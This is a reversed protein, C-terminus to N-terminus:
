GTVREVIQRFEEDTIAAKKEVAKNKVEELIEDIQEESVNIGLEKLKFEISAKGSKKGLVIRRTQGVLEPSFTEASFPAKLVGSVVLGSEHSFAANGVIPKNRQLKVESLKEVLRSTEVFKGYKLGSDIGYLLLLAVAVEQIDVNGVGEGIGNICGYVAEAGAEVAALANATALGLNNHTHIEIPIDKVTEKVKSVLYRIAPPNACGVTDVVQVLDVHGEKTITEIYRRLFSMKARTTDYPEFCVWLGHDKAYDVMDLATNIAREEPWELKYRLYTYGSPIAIDIGWADCDIVKDIHEKIGVALATIKANLRERVVAKVAEEDEKSVAPFGAEIRHIGVEDLKRAIRVKDEKRFVVGAMQEGDRLTADTFTVKSPLRMEKRVEEAFNYESVYWKDSTWKEKDIPVKTWSSVIKEM